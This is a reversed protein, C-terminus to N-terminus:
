CSENTPGELCLWQICRRRPLVRLRLRTLREHDIPRAIRIRAPLPPLVAEGGGTELTLHLSAYSPMLNLVQHRAKSLIALFTDTDGVRNHM